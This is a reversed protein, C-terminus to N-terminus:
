VDGRALRRKPPRGIAVAGVVAVTLILSAVEFPVTYRTYLEWGVARTTGSIPRLEYRQGDRIAQQEEPTADGLRTPELTAGYAQYAFYTAPPSSVPRNRPGGVSALVTATLVAALVATTVNWSTTAERSLAMRLDILMLIFLFSVIVAGANISVLIAGLFEARYSVFIGALSLFVVLLSLACHVPKQGTVVHVAAVLAAASLGYRLVDSLRYLDYGFYFATAAMVVIGALVTFTRTDRSAAGLGLRAVYYGAVILAYFILIAM